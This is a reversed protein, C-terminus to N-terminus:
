TTRLVDVETLVPIEKLCVVFHSVDAVIGGSSSQLLHEPLEIAESPVCSVIVTPPQLEDPWEFDNLVVLKTRHGNNAGWAQFHEIMRKAHDKTRNYVCVTHMKLKMLAYVASRASGGAGIILASSRAINAGNRPSLQWQINTYIGNWDSNDGYLGIVPGAQNRQRAQETLDQSKDAQLERLPLITNVAGIAKAHPSSAICAQYAQEKFPTTIAGGGFFPDQAVRMVEDFTPAFHRVFAHRMGYFDYAAQNMTPTLSEAVHMGLVCFKLADYEYSAFRARVIEQVSPKERDTPVSNTTDLSPCVPILVTNSIRSAKSFPGVNYASVPITIQKSDAVNHLFDKVDFNDQRRSSQQVLRVADYGRRQAEICVTPRQASAWRGKTDDAFHHYAIAKTCARSQLLGPEQDGALIPDVMMYEVGLKVVRLMTQIYSTQSSQPSLADSSRLSLLIPIRTARRITAISRGFDQSLLGDPFPIQLEIADEAVDTLKELRRDEMMQSLEMTLVTSHTRRETSVADLEFHGFTQKEPQPIVFSLFREFDVRVKRLCFFALEPGDPPLDADSEELNYYEFNSCLAHLQEAEYSRNRLPIHDLDRRIHIVPHTRAFDAIMETAGPVHSTVGCVMVSSEGYKRFMLQLLEIAKTCFRECGHKRIYAAKSLGTEQEFHVCELVLRRQLHSAAIFALSRKGTGQLGVLAISAQLSYTTSNLSQGGM